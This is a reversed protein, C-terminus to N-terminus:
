IGLRAMMGDHDSLGGWNVITENMWGEGRYSNGLDNSYIIM